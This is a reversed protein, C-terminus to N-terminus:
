SQVKELTYIKEGRPPHIQQIIMEGNVHVSLLHIPYLIKSPSFINGLFNYYTDFTFYKLLLSKSLVESIYYLLSRLTDRLEYNVM